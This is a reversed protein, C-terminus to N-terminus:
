DEVSKKAIEGTLPDFYVEIKVMEDSGEEKPGHGYIEYCNGSSVKFKQMTFGYENVIKKQMDLESMWKDQPESTCDPGALVAQSTFAATIILGSLIYNRM